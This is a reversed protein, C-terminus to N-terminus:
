IHPPLPPTTARLELTGGLAEEAESSFQSLLFVRHSFKSYGGGIGVLLSSCAHRLPQLGSGPRVRRALRRASSACCGAPALSRLRTLARRAVVQHM